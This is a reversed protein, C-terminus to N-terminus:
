WWTWQRLLYSIHDVVLAPPIYQRHHLPVTPRAIDPTNGSLWKSLVVGNFSRRVIFWKFWKMTMLALLFQRSIYQGGQQRDAPMGHSRTIDMPFSFAVRGVELSIARRRPLSPPYHVAFLCYLVPPSPIAISATHSCGLLVSVSFEVNFSSRDENIRGGKGEGKKGEGKREKRRM